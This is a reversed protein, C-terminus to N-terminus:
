RIRQWTSEIHRGTRANLFTWEHCRATRPLPVTSLCGGLPMEYAWVPAAAVTVTGYRATVGEPIPRQNGAYRRWALMATLHHGGGAPLPAFGDVDINMPTSPVRTASTSATPEPRSHSM